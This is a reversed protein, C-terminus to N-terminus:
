WAREPVVISVSLTRTVSGVQSITSGLLSSQHTLQGTRGVGGGIRAPVIVPRALTEEGVGRDADSALAALPGPLLPGAGRAGAVQFQERGGVVVGARQAGAGPPM